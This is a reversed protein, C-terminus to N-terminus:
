RERRFTELEPRPGRAGTPAPNPSLIRWHPDRANMIRYIWDEM